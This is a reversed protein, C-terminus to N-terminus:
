DRNQTKSVYAEWDERKIEGVANSHILRYSGLNHKDAFVFILNQNDYNWIEHSIYSANLTVKEINDPEGYKVLVRGRPTRWGPTSNSSYRSNALKIFSKFVSRIGPFTKERKKWYNKLFNRKGDENVKEAIRKEQGNLTSVVQNFEENLENAPMVLFLDDFTKPLIQKKNKINRYIFFNNTTTVSDNTESDKLKYELIYSGTDLFHVPVREFVAMTTSPSVRDKNNGEKILKMGEDYIGWNSTYVKGNNLGYGETFLNIFPRSTGFIKTANPICVIGYKTFIDVQGPNKFVKTNLQLDSLAFTNEFHKVKFNRSSESLNLNTVQKSNFDTIEVELGYFGPKLSMKSILPIEDAQRAESEDKLTITRNWKDNIVIKSDKTIKLDIGIKGVLNKYELSNKSLSFYVEVITLSSDKKFCAYDLTFKPKGFITCTILSITFFLLIKKTM